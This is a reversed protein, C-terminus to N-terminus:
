PYLYMPFIDASILLIVIVILVIVIFCGLGFLDDDPVDVGKVYHLWGGIALTSLLISLFSFVLWLDGSVPFIIIAGYIAGIAVASLLLLVALPDKNEPVKKKSM